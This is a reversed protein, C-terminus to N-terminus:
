DRSSDRAGLSDLLELPLLCLLSFNLISPDLRVIGCLGSSTSCLRLCHIDIIYSFYNVNIVTFLLLLLVFDHINVIDILLFSFIIYKGGAFVDDHVFLFVGHCFCTGVIETNGVIEIILGRSKPQYTIWFTTLDKIFLFNEFIDHSVVCVFSHSNLGVRMTSLFLRANVGTVVGLNHFLNNVGDGQIAASRLDM